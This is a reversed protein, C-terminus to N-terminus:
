ARDIIKMKVWNLAPPMLIVASFTIISVAAFHARWENQMPSTMASAGHLAFDIVGTIALIMAIVANIISVKHMARQLAPRETSGGMCRTFACAGVFYLALGIATHDPWDHLIAASIMFWAAMALAIAAVLVILKKLRASITTEDNLDNSM